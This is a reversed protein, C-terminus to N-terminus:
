RVAVRRHVQKSTESVDHQMQTHTNFDVSLKFDPYRVNEVHKALLSSLVDKRLTVRWRYERGATEFICNERANQISWHINEDDIDATLFSQLDKHRHGLILVLDSCHADEVINVFCDKLAIQM